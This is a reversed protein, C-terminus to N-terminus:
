TAIQGLASGAFSSILRSLEVKCDNVVAEAGRTAIAQMPIVAHVCPEHGVQQRSSDDSGTSGDPAEDDVVPVGPPMSSHCEKEKLSSGAKQISQVPHEVALRESNESRSPAGLPNHGIRDQGGNGPSGSFDPETATASGKGGRGGPRSAGNGSKAALNTLGTHDGGGPEGDIGSTRPGESYESSGAGSEDGRASTATNGPLSMSQDKLDKLDASIPGGAGLRDTAGASVDAVPEDAFASFLDGQFRSSFNRKM